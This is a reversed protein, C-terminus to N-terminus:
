FGPGARDERIRRVARAAAPERLELVAPGASEPRHRILAEITEEGRERALRLRHNGDALVYRGTDGYRLRIPCSQAPDWEARLRELNRAQTYTEVHALEGLAVVAFDFREVVAAYAHHKLEAPDGCAAGALGCRLADRLPMRFPGTM